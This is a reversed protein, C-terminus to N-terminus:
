RLVTFGFGFTNRFGEPNDGLYLVAQGQLPASEKRPHWFKIRGSPFCVAAAVSALEQFWTTETANNVLVCAAQVDHGRYHDVLKTAFQKVLKAEYPPNMWVRGKWVQELGDDADSFYRTARVVGNASNSSAPDLDIGGMVARAADIYEVPTYWENDGANHSVHAGGSPDSMTQVIEYWSRCNDLANSLQDQTYREAFQIRYQLETRSKRTADVLADLLGNPLKKGGNRQELLWRGFAYRAQLGEGEAATVLADLHLGPAIDFETM